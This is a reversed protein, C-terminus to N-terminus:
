QLLFGEELNDDSDLVFNNFGIINAKGKVSTIVAEFEEVKSLAELKCHFNNKTVGQNVFRDGIRLNKKSYLEAGKASTGTGCPSRDIQRDAFVTVNKWDVGDDNSRESFIVGYIGTLDEQEPHQIHYNEEVEEKIRKGWYKFESINESNQTFNYLSSNLIAYFAGGFCVDVELKLGDIEIEVGELFIFSPVNEFTVSQVKNGDYEAFAIVKGAPSDIVFRKKNDTIPFQGTEIGMTIVAIIGHGCMTSWGENHMFLVGFDADTDAPPTIICGYMGEHGRPENMLFKRIHDLHEICYARREPQTNGKIEPLGGTIIRLPEGAVHMDVTTLMKTLNM